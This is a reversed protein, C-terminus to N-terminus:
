QGADGARRCLHARKRFYRGTGSTAAFSAALILQMLIKNVLTIAIDSAPFFGAVILVVLM